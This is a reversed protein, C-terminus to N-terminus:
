ERAALVVRGAHMVMTPREVVHIDRLPDGGVAVIDAVKGVELSGVAVDLGLLQAASITGAQLAALPTMGSQVYATFVGAAERGRTRGPVAYYADSGLAVRVGAHLARALRDQRRGVVDRLRPLQRAREGSDPYFALYHDLPPDTPVLWVHRQAARVLVADSVEYAHEISTVGADIAELTAADGVVHAAVPVGARKAEDVIAALEDPALVRPGVNVIVKIVDAGEFLAQRVARRADTPGTVEAYEHAIAAALDPVVGSAQGGLPAIARTAVLMRPGATWGHRIADRLAVDAGHGANGLDRVTTFGAVLMERAIVAGRLARAADSKTALTVLGNLDDDGLAPDDDLLLHTHADIFGPLCTGNRADINLDGDGPATLGSDPEIAVIRGNVVAIAIRGRTTGAAVDLLAGCHVIVRAPPPLTAEPPTGPRSAAAIGAAAITISRIRM